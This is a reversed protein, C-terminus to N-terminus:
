RRPADPRVTLTLKRATREINWGDTQLTLELAGGPTLAARESIQLSGRLTVREGPLLNVYNDDLYFRVGEPLDTVLTELAMAANGGSNRYEIEFSREEGAGIERPFNKVVPKLANKDWQRYEGFFGGSVSLRESDGIMCTYENRALRRGSSDFVDLRLLFNHEEPVAPVTWDLKGLTNVAYAGVAGRFERSYVKRAKQGLYVAATVKLGELPRLNDNILSIDLNYPEGPRLIEYQQSATVQLPRAANRFAYYSHKCTGYYDVMAWSTVPWVENLNWFLCGSTKFRALRLNELQSQWGIVNKLMEIHILEDLSRPVGYLSDCEHPFSSIYANHTALYHENGQIPFLQEEKLFKLLDSRPPWSQQYGGESCFRRYRRSRQDDPLIGMGGHSDGGHPSAKHFERTGDHERILRDLTEIQALRDPRSADFENGGCYLVLSPHNRTRVINDRVARWSDDQPQAHSFSGVWFDQWVLIGLSDCLAYFDDTEYLGEGWVRLMNVGAEASLRLLYRYREPHLDLMADVPIWNMGQCFVKQGNVVFTWNYEEGGGHRESWLRTSGKSWEPDDNAVKELTRVGFTESLGGSAKGSGTVLEADIRYLPQAGLPIPWWLDPKALAFEDDVSAAEGPRAQLTVERTLLVTASNQRRVSYRVIARSETGTHNSVAFSVKLRASKDQELKLTRVFLNDLRLNATAVLRVPLLFGLPVIHPGWDWGFLCKSMLFEGAQPNTPTVWPRKHVGGTHSTWDLFIPDPIAKSSNEPARFRVAITNVGGYNLAQRVQIAMPQYNGVIRGCWTENIWVDARYNVMGCRLEVLAGDWESPVEFRRFLWWEKDEVQIINKSNDGIYPDEIRGAALLARQVSGPVAVPIADAALRATDPPPEVLVIGMAPKWMGMGTVFDKMLWGGDLSLENKGATLAYSTVVTYLLAIFLATSIKKM